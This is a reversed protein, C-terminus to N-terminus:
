ETGAVIGCGKSQARKRYNRIVHRLDGFLMMQKHSGYEQSIRPMDYIRKVNTLHGVYEFAFVVVRVV